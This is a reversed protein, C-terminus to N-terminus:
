PMGYESSILKREKEAVVAYIQLMFPDVDSGLEAVIFPVQHVMLKAAYLWLDLNGRRWPRRSRRGMAGSRVKSRTARGSTALVPIVFRRVYIGAQNLANQFAQSQTVPDVM